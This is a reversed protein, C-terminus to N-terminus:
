DQDGDDQDVASNIRRGIDGSTLPQGRKQEAIYAATKAAADKYLQHQESTPTAGIESAAGIQQEILGALRYDTGDRNTGSIGDTDAVGHPELRAEPRNADYRNM